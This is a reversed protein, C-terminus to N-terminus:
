HDHISTLNSQSSLQAGFFQHKQVATNSFVRSLGKSQLSIWGTWGLPSWDQTYMPLVSASSFSWYKPWRICLVSEISFVRISPFISPPLLLPRCLILHNSPMVLEISMLKLPSQSNTISLSAQHAATWPTAFLQVCSLSQISSLWDHGVSQSGMSQLCAGRDMTSSHTAMGKELADELGLSRVKTERVVPLNNVTQAVLSAGAAPYISTLLIYTLGRWGRPCLILYGGHRLPVTM